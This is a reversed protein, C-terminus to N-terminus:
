PINKFEIGSSNSGQKKLSDMILKSASSDYEQAADQSGSDLSTFMLSRLFAKDSESHGLSNIM